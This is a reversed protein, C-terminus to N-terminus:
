CYHCRVVYGKRAVDTRWADQALALTLVLHGDAAGVELVIDELAEANLYYVM